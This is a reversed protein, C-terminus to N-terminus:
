FGLDGAQKMLKVSRDFEHKELYEIEPVVKNIVFDETTKAIMKQEDTYDEPTFMQDYM